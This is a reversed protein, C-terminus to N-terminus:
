RERFGVMWDSNPKFRQVTCEITSYSENNHDIPANLSVSIKSGNIFQDVIETFQVSPVTSVGPYKRRYYKVFQQECQNQAESTATKLTQTAIADARVVSPIRSRVSPNIASDTMLMPNDGQEDTVCLFDTYTLEGEASVCKAIPKAAHVHSSLVFLTVLLLSLTKM